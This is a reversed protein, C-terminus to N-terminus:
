ENLSLAGSPEPRRAFILSSPGRNPQQRGPRPLLILRRSLTYFAKPNGTQVRTRSGGGGRFLRITDTKKADHPGDPKKRRGHRKKRHNQMDKSWSRRLPRSRRASAPHLAREAFDERRPPRLQAAASHAAVSYSPPRSRMRSRTLPRREPSPLASESRKRWPCVFENLLSIFVYAIM